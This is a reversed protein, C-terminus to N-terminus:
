PYEKSLAEPTWQQLFDIVKKESYGEGEELYGTNQTHLRQGSGDLIVFVPFGFRQPKGLRNLAENNKNEKSYNLHLVIYNANIISDVATTEHSWKYFLRCWKCWNGGVQVLVHKGKENAKTVAENIELSGDALPNYIKFEETQANVNSFLLFTVIFSILYKM